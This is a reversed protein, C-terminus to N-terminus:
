ASEVPTISKSSGTLGDLHVTIEKDKVNLAMYHWSGNNIHTGEPYALSVEDGSSFYAEVGTESMSM